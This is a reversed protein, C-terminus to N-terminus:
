IRQYCNDMHRRKKSGSLVNQIQSEDKNCMREIVTMCYPRFFKDFIAVPVTIILLIWFIDRIIRM